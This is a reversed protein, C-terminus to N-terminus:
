NRATRLASNESRPQNAVRQGEGVLGWGEGAGRGVGSRDGIPTPLGDGSSPPSRLCVHKPRFSTPAVGV